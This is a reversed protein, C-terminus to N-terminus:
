RGDRVDNQAVSTSLRTIFYQNKNKVFGHAYAAKETITMSRALYTQELAAVESALTDTALMIEERVVVHSVSLMILYSYLVILAVLGIGLIFFINRELAFSVTNTATRHSVRSKFPLHLQFVSQKKRTM